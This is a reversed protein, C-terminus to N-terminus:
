RIFGPDARNHSGFVASESYESEESYKSLFFPPGVLFRRARLTEKDSPFSVQLYVKRRRPEAPKEMDVTPNVEILGQKKAWRFMTGLMM